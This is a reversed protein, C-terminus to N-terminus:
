GIKLKTDLPKIVPKQKMRTPINESIVELLLQAIRKLGTSKLYAASIERIPTPEGIEKVMDEYVEPINITALEPLFTMGGQNEVIRKISEISYSIYRFSLETEKRDPIQCISNVQNQFCNGERLYWLEETQLQDQSIKEEAFLSHRDSVYLYFREYFLPVFGINKAIVPTSLIGLDLENFTLRTIIDETNVETIELFLRPYKENLADIFLPVLYPSLTPIIGVRLKGEAQEDMDLGLQNLDDVLQVITLAKEYFLEGESTLSLPKRTRDILQYSYEEELKQIQLSLAPQSIHLQAAARSFSRHRVLEIFYTLQNINM